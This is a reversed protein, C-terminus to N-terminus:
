KAIVKQPGSLQQKSGNLMIMGVYYWYTQGVAASRDRWTYNSTVGDGKTGDTRVIDDNVRLFPGNEAEARYVLYGYINSENSVQWRLVPGRGPPDAHPVSSQRQTSKQLASKLNLAVSESTEGSKDKQEDLSHVKVTEPLYFGGIKIPLQRHFDPLEVHLTGTVRGNPQDDAVTLSIQACNTADGICPEKSTTGKIGKISIRGLTVPKGDRSKLQVVFPHKTTRFVGLEFPNSSPVVDGHVDAKVEIWAQPQVKSNLAVKVYGDHLGWGAKANGEMSITRGDALIKATVFDPVEIIRTIRFNPVERSSLLISKAPIPGDTNITGLDVRPQSDDLVSLGFLHVVAAIHPKTPSDTNIDFFHLRNGADMRSFITVPIDVSKGTDVTVPMTIKGLHDLDNTPTVSLVRLPKDSTNTLLIIANGTNGQYMEGIDQVDLKVQAYAPSAVLCILVVLAYKSM